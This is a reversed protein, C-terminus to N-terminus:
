VVSKRDRIDNMKLDILLQERASTKSKKNSSLTSNDEIFTIDERTSVEFRALSLLGYAGTLMTVFKSTQGSLADDLQRDDLMPINAEHQARDLNQERLRKSYFLVTTRLAQWDSILMRAHSCINTPSKTPKAM